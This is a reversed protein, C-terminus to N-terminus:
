LGVHRCLLPTAGEGFGVRLWCGWFGGMQALVRM